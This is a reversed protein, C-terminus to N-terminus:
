QPLTVMITAIVAEITTTLVVFSATEKRIIVCLSQNIIPLPGRTGLRHCPLTQLYSFLFFLGCWCQKSWGMNKNEWLLAAPIPCYPNTECRVEHELCYSPQQGTMSQIRFTRFQKDKICGELATAGGFKPSVWILDDQHLRKFVHFFQDQAVSPLIITQMQHFTVTAQKRTFLVSISALSFLQLLLPIAEGAM